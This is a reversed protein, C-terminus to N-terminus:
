HFIAIAVDPISGAVKRSTAVTGGRAETYVGERRIKKPICLKPVIKKKLINSHAFFSVSPSV